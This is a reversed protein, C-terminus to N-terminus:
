TTVNIDTIKDYPPINTKCHMMGVILLVVIYIVLMQPMTLSIQQLFGRPLNALLQAIDLMYTLILVVPWSVM